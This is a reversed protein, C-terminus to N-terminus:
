ARRGIRDSAEIIQVNVGNDLLTKAAALGAAGAGILVVDPNATDIAWAWRPLAAATLATQL